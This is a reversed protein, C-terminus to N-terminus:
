LTYGLNLEQLIRNLKSRSLRQIAQPVGKLVEIDELEELSLFPKAYGMLLFNLAKVPNESSANWEELQRESYVSRGGAVRMLESTSYALQMDELVGVATIAQSPSLKSSGKYFFITAGTENMNAPAQSLYVKRITNGPRKPGAGGMLTLLDGQPDDKLDPFLTDHWLEQIPIIYGTAHAGTHFRPYNHKALTYLNDDSNAELQKLSLPKEYVLENGNMTKTHSFGYDEILDILAAQEKQTTLYIVDFKNAQAFWFAQKLLLEGLKTGRNEPRVKFTCIKLIKKGPLTADTDKQTEEKRVILGALGEDYVAWCMRRKKVCKERWWDDFGDYGERLSDFIDDEIPIENASVEEVYRVPVSIPEYTATLLAVADAIFLIRRSLHPAHQRARTHLGRDETVLFDAAGIDLAHLLTADVVDNPKPLNGFKSQLKQEDLGRVKKILQFKKIKSLSVSRRSTDKDRKIDDRAAEHVFV